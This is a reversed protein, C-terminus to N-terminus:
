SPEDPPPQPCPHRLSQRSGPRLALREMTAPLAEPGHALSRALSDLGHALSALSKPLCRPRAPLATRTTPLGPWRNPCADQDYPCPQCGPLDTRTGAGCLSPGPGELARAFSRVAAPEQRAARLSISRETLAWRRNRTATRGDPTSPNRIDLQRWMILLGDRAVWHPEGEDSRHHAGSRAAGDGLWVQGSM